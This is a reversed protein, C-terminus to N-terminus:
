FMAEILWTSLLNILFLLMEGVHDCGWSIQRLALLFNHANKPSPILIARLWRWTSFTWKEPYFSYLFGRTPSPERSFMREHPMMLRVDGHFIMLDLWSLSQKTRDDRSHRACMIPSPLQLYNSFYDHACAGNALLPSSMAIRALVAAVVNRSQRSTRSLGTHPTAPVQPTRGGPSCLSTNYPSGSVAGDGGPIDSWGAQASWWTHDTEIAMAAWKVAPTGRGLYASITLAAVGPECSSRM